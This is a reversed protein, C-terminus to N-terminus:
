AGNGMRSFGAQIERALMDFGGQISSSGDNNGFGRSQAEYLRQLAQQQNLIGEVRTRNLNEAYEQMEKAHEIEKRREEADRAEQEEARAAFARYIEEDAEIAAKKREALNKNAYRATIADEAQGALEYTKALEEELRKLNADRLEKNKSKRYTQMEDEIAAARAQMDKMVSQIEKEMDSSPSIAEEIAAKTGIQVKRAEDRLKAIEEKAAKAKKEMQDLANGVALIPTSILGVIGLISTFAQRVENLPSLGKKVSKATSDGLEETKAKASDIGADLGSTDATIKVHASGLEESM